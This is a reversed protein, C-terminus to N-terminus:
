HEPVHSNWSTIEKEQILLLNYSHWTMERAETLSRQVMVLLLRQYSHGLGGIEKWFHPNQFPIHFTTAEMGEKSVICLSIVGPSIHEFDGGLRTPLWLVVCQRRSQVKWIPEPDHWLSSCISIESQFYFSCLVLYFRSLIAVQKTRLSFAKRHFSPSFYPILNVPWKGYLSSNAPFKCHVCLETSQIWGPM